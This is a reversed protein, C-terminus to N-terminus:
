ARFEVKSASALSRLVAEVAAVAAVGEAGSVMVAQGHLISQYFARQEILLHDRKEYSEERVFVGSSVEGAPAFQLKNAFLDVRTAGSAHLVELARVEHVHNRGATITALMGGELEFTATVHDWNSTRIKFGQASVSKLRRGFLWLMLDIDHIMLDQVVDVDTARGKFPAYRDIRLQLPGPLSKLALREWAQHCRESHGVQLILKKKEALDALEQAEGVTSCLPKECFVHKGAHLLDKAVQYHLSTPTVIVAADFENAERWDALVPTDPHAARAAAQGAAFPEVIAVPRCLEVLAHAKQAHWKGLFGYGITIVRVPAM